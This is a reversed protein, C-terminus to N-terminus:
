TICSAPGHTMTLLAEALPTGLAPDYDEVVLPRDTTVIRGSYDTM